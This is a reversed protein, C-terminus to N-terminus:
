RSRAERIRGIRCALIVIMFAVMAADNGLGTHYIYVRGDVGM